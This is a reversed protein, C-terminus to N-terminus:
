EGLFFPFVLNERVNEGIVIYTIGIDVRREDTSPQVIVELDEIRPENEILTEKIETALQDRVERSNLEHKFDMIRTGTEPRHPREGFRTHLIFIVASKVTDLSDVTIKFDGSSSTQLPYVLGKGLFGKDAM